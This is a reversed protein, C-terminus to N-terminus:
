LILFVLNYMRIVLGFLGRVCRPRLMEMELCIFDRACSIEFLCWAHLWIHM